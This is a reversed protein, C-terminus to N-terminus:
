LIQICEDEFQLEEPQWTEKVHYRNQVKEIVNILFKSWYLEDKNKKTNDKYSRKELQYNVKLYVFIKNIFFEYKITYNPILEHIFNIFMQFIDAADKMSALPPVTIGFRAYNLLHYRYLDCNVDYKAIYYDVICIDVDQKSINNCELFVDFKKLVTNPVNTSYINSLIKKFHKLKNNNKLIVRTRGTRNRSSIYFYLDCYQCYCRLKHYEVNRSCRVCCIHDYVSDEDM